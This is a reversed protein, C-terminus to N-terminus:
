AASALERSDRAPTLGDSRMTDTTALVLASQDKPSPRAWNKSPSRYGRSDGPVAYGPGPEAADHRRAHRGQDIREQLRVSKPAIAFFMHYRCM